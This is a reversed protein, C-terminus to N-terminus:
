QMLHQYLEKKVNSQRKVKSVLRQQGGHWKCSYKKVVGTLVLNPIFSKSITKNHLFNVQLIVSPAMIKNTPSFHFGM